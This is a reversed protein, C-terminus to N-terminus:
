VQMRMIEHYADIVKNRVQITMQMAISAKESAIMVQHIDSTQGSVLAASQRDAEKSLSNVSQIAEKLFSEFGKGNLAPSTQETKVNELRTPYPLLTQIGIPLREM